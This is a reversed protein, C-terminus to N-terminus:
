QKNELEQKSKNVLSSSCHPLFPGWNETSLKPRVEEPRPILQWRITFELFCGASLNERPTYRHVNITSRLYLELTFGTSLLASQNLKIKIKTPENVSTSIIWTKGLGFWCNKTLRFHNEKHTLEFREILDEWDANTRNADIASICIGIKIREVTRLAGGDVLLTGTVKPPVEVSLESALSTTQDEKQVYINRSFEM